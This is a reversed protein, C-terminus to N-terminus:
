WIPFAKICKYAEIWGDETVVTGIGMSLGVHCMGICPWLVFQIDYLWVSFMVPEFYLIYIVIVHGIVIVCYTHM